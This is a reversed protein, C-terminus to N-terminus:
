RRFAYVLAGGLLVVAAAVFWLASPGTPTDRLPDTDSLTFRPAPAGGPSIPRKTALPGPAALEVVHVAGPTSYYLGKPGWALAIVPESSELFVRDNTAHDRAENLTLRHITQEGYAGFFLDGAVQDEANAPDAFAIGTPVIIQEYAAIPEEYEGRLSATDTDGAPGSTIPWGGNGGAVIRNIEDYSEPGNETVFPNGSIPDIALGFPNRYGIAFAPSDGFPNDDPVSGDPTYRYIKGGLQAPDQSRASEHTEGNSVYLMGDRGFAVGGGNHYSGAPLGEVVVKAEGGSTPVRYVVNTAGDAATAFAYLFRDDPSVAIGLLGSEGSTTTQVSAVVRPRREIALIRGARETIYMTGTSDFAIGAPFEARVVVRPEIQAVAGAALVFVAAGAAAGVALVLLTARVAARHAIEGTM